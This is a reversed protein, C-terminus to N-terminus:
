STDYYNTKKHSKITISSVTSLAVLTKRSSACARKSKLTQRQTPFLLHAQAANTFRQSVTQKHKNHREM